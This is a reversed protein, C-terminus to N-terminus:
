RGRSRTLPLRLSRTAGVERGTHILNARFSPPVV